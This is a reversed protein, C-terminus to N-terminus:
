EYVGTIIQHRGVVKLVCICNQWQSGIFRNTLNTKLRQFDFAAVSLYSCELEKGFARHENAADFGPSRYRVSADILANCWHRHFPSLVLLPNCNIKKKHPQGLSTTTIPSSQCQANCQQLNDADIEITDFPEITPQEPGKEVAYDISNM